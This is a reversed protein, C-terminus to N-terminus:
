VPPVWSNQSQCFARHRLKRRHFIPRGLPNHCLGSAPATSPCCLHPLTTALAQPEQQPMLGLGSAGPPPCSALVGPGALPAGWCRLGGQGDLGRLRGAGPIGTGVSGFWSGRVGGEQAGLPGRASQGAPGGLPATQPAPTWPDVRQRRTDVCGQGRALGAGPRQLESRADARAATEM